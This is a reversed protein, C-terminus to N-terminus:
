IRGYIDELREIDDEDFHGFAIELFRARDISKNGVSHITGRPIVYERDPIMKIEESGILAYLGDDLPVWLEDRKQHRQVSLKQRPAVEIIKVTTQQNNTYQTFKGWPRFDVIKESM